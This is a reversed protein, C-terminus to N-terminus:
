TTKMQHEDFCENILSSKQIVIYKNKITKLVVKSTPLMSAMAARLELFDKANGSVLNFSQDSIFHM